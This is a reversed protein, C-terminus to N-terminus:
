RGSLRIVVLIIVLIILVHILNMNGVAAIPISVHGFVGLLWLVLLVVIVTELM